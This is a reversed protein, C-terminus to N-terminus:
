QNIELSHTKQRIAQKLSPIYILLMEPTRPNIKKVTFSRIEQRIASLGGEWEGLEDRTQDGAAAGTLAGGGGVWSGPVGVVLHEKALASGGFVKKEDARGGIPHILRQGVMFGMGTQGM